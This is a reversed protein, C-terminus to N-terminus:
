YAEKKVEKRGDKLTNTKERVLLPRAHAEGNEDAGQHAVENTRM